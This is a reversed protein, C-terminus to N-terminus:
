AYLMSMITVAQPRVPWGSSARLEMMFDTAGGAMPSLIERPAAMDCYQTNCVANGPALKAFENTSMSAAMPKSVEPMVLIIADNGGYGAGILTDDYTWILEDGNQMLIEKITGATSATGAGERQFQTLQVVNYEFQGLTRQPGIITMKKGIGLQLTRTKLLQVQQAIFFAMQGNDYTVVTSNGNSDPPVNVATTGPANLLGEGLAPNMGKLSADRLLQFFGQRMGLRYAEQASFGWRGAAAVDHHDFQSRNKFLYTSTSIMSAAVDVGPLENMSATGATMKTRLNLQKMYVLLDDEGLRVRLKGDALTDLYGSPQTYQLLLEPEKFSPEVVNWASAQIAM